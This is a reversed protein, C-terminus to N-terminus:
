LLGLAHDCDVLLAIGGCRFFVSALGRFSCLIGSSCGILKLLFRCGNTM